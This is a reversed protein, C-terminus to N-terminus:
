VFNWCSLGKVELYTRLTIKLAIVTYKRPRDLTFITGDGCSIVLDNNPTDTHIM